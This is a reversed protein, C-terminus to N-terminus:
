DQLNCHDHFTALNSLFSYKTLCKLTAHTLRIIAKCFHDSHGANPPRPDIKNDKCFHDCTFIGSGKVCLVCFGFVNMEGLAENQVSGNKSQM